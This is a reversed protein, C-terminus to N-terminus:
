LVLGRGIWNLSEQLSGKHYYMQQNLYKLSCTMGKQHRISNGAETHYEFCTIISEINKIKNRRQKQFPCNRLINLKFHFSCVRKINGETFIYRTFEDIREQQDQMEHTIQQSNYRLKHISVVSFVVIRFKCSEINCKCLHFGFGDSDRM